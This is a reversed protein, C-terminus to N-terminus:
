VDNGEASLRGPSTSSRNHQRDIEYFEYLAAGCACHLLGTRRELTWGACRDHGAKAVLVWLALDLSDGGQVVDDTM